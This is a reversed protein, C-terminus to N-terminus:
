TAEKAVLIYKIIDYESPIKYAGSGKMSHLPLLHTPYCHVHISDDTEQSYLCTILSSKAKVAALTVIDTPREPACLTLCSQSCYPVSHHLLNKYVLLFSILIWAHICGYVPLLLARFCM